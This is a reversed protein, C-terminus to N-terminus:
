SQLGSQEFLDCCDRQPNELESDFFILIDLFMTTQPFSEQRFDVEHPLEPRDGRSLISTRQDDIQRLKM